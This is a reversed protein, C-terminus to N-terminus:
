RLIESCGSIFHWCSLTKQLALFALLLRLLPLHIFLYYTSQKKNARMHYASTDQLFTLSCYYCYKNENVVTLLSNLIHM